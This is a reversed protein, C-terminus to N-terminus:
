RPLPPDYQASRNLYRAFPSETQAGEAFRQIAEEERGAARLLIGESYLLVSKDVSGGNTRIADLATEIARSSGAPNTLSAALLPFGYDPSSLPASAKAIRSWRRAAAKKDGCLSEALGFYFQMRLQKELDGFGHFTFALAKNEPAFDDIRADLGACQGSSAASLIARMQLEAYAQRVEPPQKEAPFNSAQFVHAAGSADNQALLTLAFGAAETSSSFSSPPPVAPRSAGSGNVVSALLQTLDNDNPHRALAERILREALKNKQAVILVRAVTGYYSAIGEAGPRAEQWEALAEDTLRSNFLLCGLLYHATYDLHNFEIAARLVPYSSARSPNVYLTSQGSALRFDAAPSQGLRARAYGRYYAILPYANPSVAGPETELEAVPPYGRDLLTIADEYLGVAFYDDALDLVWEPGAALRRWIGSDERGLLTSELGLLSDMPNAALYPALAAQADATRGLRRLLAIELGAAHGAGHAALAHMMEVATKRDGARATACALQYQAALSFRSDGSVSQWLLRAGTDDGSESRAVGLYYKVEADSPDEEPVQALTELAEAFRGLTISLRGAAKRLALSRPAASLAAQYGHAAQDLQRVLEEQEGAALTEEEPTRKGPPPNVPGGIKVEAPTVADYTDERHALLVQGSADQLEVRFKGAATVSPTEAHFAAAPDLDADRQYVIQGDKTVSVRAHTLPRTVNLDITATVGGGPQPQRQLFLVADRTARSIGGTDRTPIWLETFSRSQQPELFEMMEQTTQLGAQIEIYGSHDDSLSDKYGEDRNGWVWIKKGPVEQPDAWHAVGTRSAPNYTAFFPERSGYAFLGLADAFHATTSL